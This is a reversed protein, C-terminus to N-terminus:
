SAAATVNGLGVPEIDLDKYTAMPLYQIGLRNMKSRALESRDVLTVAGVIEAGTQEVVDVTKLISGGTTVVDDVLLVRSGTSIRTGEIRRRTGHQKPQLRIFFWRSDASAAIGVALADAGMSPGGVADFEIGANEVVEMIAESAIRLDKWEALARKGDIFDTSLEGSALRIPKEHTDLAKERLIKLLNQRLLSAM